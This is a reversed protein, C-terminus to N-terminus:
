VSAIMPTEAVVDTTTNSGAFNSNATGSFLGKVSASGSTTLQGPTGTNLFLASNAAVTATINAVLGQGQVAAWFYDGPQAADQQLTSQIGGPGNGLSYFQAIGIAKNIVALTTTANNANFAEDWVIANGATVTTSAKVFVWVSNNNGQVRDGLAATAAPLEYGTQGTIASLATATSGQSNVVTQRQQLGPGPVKNDMPFWSLNATM